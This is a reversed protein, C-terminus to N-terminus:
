RQDEWSQVPARIGTRREVFSQVELQVPSTYIKQREKEKRALEEEKRVVEKREEEQREEYGLCAGYDLCSIGAYRECKESYPCREGWLSVYFEWFNPLINLRLKM